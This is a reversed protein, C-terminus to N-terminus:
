DEAKTALLGALSIDLQSRVLRIISEAEEGSLTLRAALLEETREAVHRRAQELWRAATARHVGYLGGIQDITLHDLTHHRLVTRARPTLSAVAEAFCSAFEDRYTAKLRETEPDGAAALASLEDTGRGVDRQMERTVRLCERVASVRLFGRLDGLGAYDAIRPGREADGALLHARLRQTVEDAVSRAARLSAAAADVEACLLPDFIQIAGADAAACSAALYLDAARLSGLEALVDGKGAAHQALVRALREPVLAIGPLAQRVAAEIDLLRTSLAGESARRLPEAVGAPLESLFIETLTSPPM